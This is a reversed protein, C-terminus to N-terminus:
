PALTAGKVKKKKKKMSGFLVVVRGYMKFIPEDDDPYPNGGTANTAVDFDSAGPAGVVLDDLGDNNLDILPQVHVSYAFQSPSPDLGM